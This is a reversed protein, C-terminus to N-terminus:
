NLRVPPLIPILPKPPNYLPSQRGPVFYGTTIKSVGGILLGKVTPHTEEKYESDIKQLHKYAPIDIKLVIGNDRKLYVTIKITEIHNYIASADADNECILFLCLEGNYPMVAFDTVKPENM